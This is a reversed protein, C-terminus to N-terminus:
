TTRYVRRDKVTGGYCSRKHHCYDLLIDVWEKRRAGAALAWLGTSCLLFLGAVKFSNTLAQGTYRSEHSHM